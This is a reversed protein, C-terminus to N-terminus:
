VRVKITLEGTEANENVEEVTGLQSAREKLSAVTVRNVVGDLEGKLDKLRAGLRETVQERLRTEEATAEAELQAQANQRLEQERLGKSEEVAVGTRQAKLDLAKEGKATVKVEGDALTVEVTIGDKEHRVAKDGQRTFGKKTLEAALLDGTRERSLIPLLELKSAVGDDVQVHRSLSEEISIRYARSM